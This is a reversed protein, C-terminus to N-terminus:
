KDPRVLLYHRDAEGTFNPFDFTGRVIWHSMELLGDLEKLQGENAFVFRVPYSSVYFKLRDMKLMGAILRGDVLGNADLITAGSFYGILGVDWAIGSAGKLDDYNTSKFKEFTASRGASVMRLKQLDYTQWGVFAVGISVAAARSLRGAVGRVKAPMAETSDLVAINFALLFFEIFVFYRYGQIAQRRWVILAVFLIFGVNLVVVFKRSRAHFVSVLFSCIVSGVVIVGLSSAAAHAKVIDFLTKVAAQTSPLDALANAKAIATDPLVAGFTCYIVALGTAAGVVLSLAPASVAVRRYATLSAVAIMVVLYCFEVRLTVALAAILAFIILEGTGAHRPESYIEFAVSGFLLACVGILGTEMGDALWRMALPSSVGALFAISLGQSYLNRAAIVRRALMAFLIGYIVLDIYKPLLAASSIWSGIALLTTFLPSSTCFSQRDGNFSFFGFDMLNRAIRLHIFADDQFLHLSLRLYFAASTAFALVVFWQFSTAQPHAKALQV